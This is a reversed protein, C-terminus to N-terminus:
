VMLVTQGMPALWVRRAPQVLRAPRGWQAKFAKCARSVRRVQRDKRVLPASQAKRALRAPKARRAWWLPCGSLRPAWLAKRWPWNMPPQAMAETPVPWVRLAKLALRGKRVRRVPLGLRARSAKRALLAWPALQGPTERTM